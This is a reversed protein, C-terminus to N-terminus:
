DLNALAKIVFVGTIVAMGLLSHWLISKAEATKQSDGGASLFLLVSEIIRIAGLIMGGVGIIVAILWLIGPITEM